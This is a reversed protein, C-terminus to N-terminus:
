YRTTRGYRRSAGFHKCTGSRSALACPLFRREWIGLQQRYISSKTCFVKSSSAEYQIHKILLEPLTQPRLYMITEGSLWCCLMYATYEPSFDGVSYFELANEHLWTLRGLLMAGLFDTGLPRHRPWWQGGNDPRYLFWDKPGLDPNLRLIRYRFAMEVDEGMGSESFGKKLIGSVESMLDPLDEPQPQPQLVNRCLKSRLIRRWLEAEQLKSYSCIRQGCKTTLLFDRATQHVFAIQLSAARVLQPQGSIHTPGLMSRKLHDASGRLSPFFPAMLSETKVFANYTDLRPNPLSCCVLLGACRTLVHVRLTECQQEFQCPRIADLGGTWPVNNCPQLLILDLITLAQGVESYALCFNLFISADRQYQSDNQNHRRWIQEYLTKLEPPLAKLRQYMEDISDCNEAGQRLSDVALCAWLFVGGAKECFLKALDPSTCDGDCTTDVLIPRVKDHFYQMIDGANVEHLQLHAAGRLAIEFRRLPRSSVCCKVNPLAAVRHVFDTLITGSLGLGLVAEDLGDIFFCFFLNEDKLCESLCTQLEQVSWDTVTSKHCIHPDQELILCLKDSSNQLIQLLLVALLGRFSKQESSGANWLYAETLILDRPERWQKLLQSTSSHEAIFNVLTSKGSGPKGSTWYVQSNHILWEQLTKRVESRKKDQSDTFAIRDHDSLELLWEFTRPHRTNKIATKRANMGSFRLSGFVRDRKKRIEDSIQISKM